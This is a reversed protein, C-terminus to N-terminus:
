NKEEVVSYGNMTLASIAPNLNEEKVMIYDTNYTSIIFVPVNYDALVSSINAIIGTLNFSLPGAVKIIKWDLEAKIVDPPLSYKQITVLSIEENTRTFSIFSNREAWEPLDSGPSLQYIAYRGPLKILFPNM